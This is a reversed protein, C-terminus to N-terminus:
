GAARCVKLDAKINAASATGRFAVVLTRRGWMLLCNSDHVPERLWEFHSCGALAMAHRISTVTSAPQPSPPLSAARPLPAPHPLPLLM